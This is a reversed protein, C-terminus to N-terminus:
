AAPRLSVANPQLVESIRDVATQMIKHQFKWASDPIVGQLIVCSDKVEAKWSVLYGYAAFQVEVCDDHFQMTVQHVQQPFRDPLSGVFEKVRTTAGTRGLRHNVRSEIEIM